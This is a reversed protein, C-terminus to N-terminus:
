VLNEYIFLIASSNEETILRCCKHNKVIDAIVTSSPHRYKNNIGASIFYCQTYYFRHFIAKNFNHISGHHPVQIIQINNLVNKYKKSLESLGKGNLDYDGLYLCGTFERLVSHGHFCEYCNYDIHCNCCYHNCYYYSDIFDDKAAGSYLVMSNANKEENNKIIENFIAKADDINTQSIKDPKPITKGKTNYLQQIKNILDSNTLNFPIYKWLTNCVLIQTGSEIESEKGQNYEELFISNEERDDNKNNDLVKIYVINTEQNQENIFNKPNNIFFATENDLNNNSLYLLKSETTLIPLFVYKVTCHNLLKKLGNIHDRHFHSIFVALIKEDKEFTQTIENDILKGRGTFPTDSGCDYVINVVSQGNNQECRETYFAGQGVSHITRIMRM